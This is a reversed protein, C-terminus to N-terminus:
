KWAADVRLDLPSMAFTRMEATGYLWAFWCTAESMTSPEFPRADLPSVCFTSSDSIECRARLAPLLAAIRAAIWRVIVIPELPSLAFTRMDMAWAFRSVVLSNVSAKVLAAKARGDSPSRWFTKVTAAFARYGRRAAVSRRRWRVMVLIEGGAAPPRLPPSM